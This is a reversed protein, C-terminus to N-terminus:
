FLFVVNIHGGHVCSPFEYSIINPITDVNSYNSLENSLM